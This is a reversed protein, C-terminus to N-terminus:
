EEPIERGLKEYARMFNNDITGFSESYSNLSGSPSIALAMFDCYLDYMEKVIEYTESFDEPPNKLETMLAAVKDQNEKIESIATITDADAYLAALSINFDDHFSVVGMTFKDTSPDKEKHITNYWVAQTTNCLSEAGAAGYLMESRIDNLNQIYATRANSKSIFLFAAIALLLVLAVACGALLKKQNKPNKIGLSISTVEVQQPSPTSQNEQLPYGCHPCATVKDSIERECEPCKILAM